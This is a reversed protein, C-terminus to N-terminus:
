RLPPERLGGPHRQVIAHAMAALEGKYMLLTHLLTFFASVFRAVCRLAMAEQVSTCIYSHAHLIILFLGLELSINTDRFDHRYTADEHLM